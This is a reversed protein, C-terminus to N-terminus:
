IAYNVDNVAQILASAVMDRIASPSSGLNTTSITFDKVVNQIDINISKVQGATATATTPTAKLSSNIGLSGKLPASASTGPASTAGSTTGSTTGQPAPVDALDLKHRIETIFTAGKTALGGLGPIKSLIDLLQQLPYLLADLLVIGIRKLGALIGDTRFAQTISDWHKRLSMIINIILGIPGLLLSIAAGWENYKTIVIAIIAVLAAIAAVILGIPNMSAIVNFAAQATSWARTALSAVKTKVAAFAASNGIAQIMPAAAGLQGFTDIASSVLPIASGLTSHVWDGITSFANSIRQLTSQSTSNIQEFANDMVGASSQMLSTNEAFKDALEGTLPTLARVAEASGFLTAYVESKLQGTSQCYEDIRSNLSQMYNVLGGAEKISMANFSMGLQDAMQAAQSSPKVMATFVASLQTGVEATNGSVGTLTSFTAMLEDINVGLTAANGAVKPLAESLQEFSTVGNKATLQIKDQIDAAATWELGYNKIVTSTVGVVKELDACGGVASRASSNLFDIWNDKPVGNSIVQYLGSALADKALPIETSLSQISAKMADYETAGLGAMTNAKRMALEFDAAPATLNGLASTIRGVSDALVNLRFVKETLKAFTGTSAEAARQGEAVAQAVGTFSGQVQHLPESINDTFKLTFNVTNTSAM